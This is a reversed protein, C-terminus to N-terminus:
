GLEWFGTWGIQWGPEWGCDSAVGRSEEGSRAVGGSRWVGVVEERSMLIAVAVLYSCVQVGATGGGDTAWKLFFRSLGPCGPDGEDKLREVRSRGEGGELGTVGTVVRM